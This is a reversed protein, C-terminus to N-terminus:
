PNIEPILINDLRTYTIGLAKNLSNLVQLFHKEYGREEIPITASQEQLLQIAVKVIRAMIDASSTKGRFYETPMEQDTPISFHDIITLKSQTPIDSTNIYDILRM